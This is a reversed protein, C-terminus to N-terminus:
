VDANIRVKWGLFDFGVNGQYPTLTHTIRTKSPKLELGIDQLWRELVAKAKEVGQLTPHFVVFDDAYRVLHPREKSTYAQQLVTEM